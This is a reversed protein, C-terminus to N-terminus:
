VGRRPRPTPPSRAQRTRRAWSRRRSESIPYPTGTGCTDNFQFGNAAQPECGSVLCEQKFTCHGATGPTPGVFCTYLVGRDGFTAPFSGGCVDGHRDATDNQIDAPPIPASVSLTLASPRM